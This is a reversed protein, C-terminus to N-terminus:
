AYLVSLTHAVMGACPLFPSKTLNSKILHACLLLKMHNHALAIGRGGSDGGCLMLWVLFSVKM